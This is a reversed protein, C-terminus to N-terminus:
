PEFTRPTDIAALELAQGPLHFPTSLTGSAPDFAAMWLQAPRLTGGLTRRSSFVVWAGGPGAESAWAVNSDSPDSALQMPTGTGDTRVAGLGTGTYLLWAGDSSFAAGIGNDALVRGASLTANLADWAYARLEGNAGTFALMTGAASVTPFRAAGQTQLTQIPAATDGDRLTLTGSTETILFGSPDYVASTWATNPDDLTLYSRTPVDVIRGTGTQGPAANTVVAVRMADKSVAARDVSTIDYTPDDPDISPALYTALSATAVDYRYVSPQDTMTAGFLLQAAVPQKAITIRVSQTRAAAPATTSLSRSTLAVDGSAPASATIVRWELPSLPLHSTAGVVRLDLDETSARVEFVDDGTAGAFDVELAGLNPPILARDAPTLQADFPAATAADLAAVSSAPTADVIRQSHVKVHIPVEITHGGYTVALAAKGAARGSIVFAGDRLSGVQAGVLDFTADVETAGVMVRLPIAVEAALETTMEIAAPEAHLAGADIETVCAGLVSVGVIIGTFRM